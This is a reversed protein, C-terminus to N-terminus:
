DSQIHSLIIERVMNLAYNTTMEINRIRSYRLKYKKTMVSKGFCAAMWVTGVPKEETGGDPGMIGSVAIGIDTKMVSSVSLAMAKVTEESVAGHIQLIDEAVGLLNQKVEDAYSVVSGKFYDSSGPILTIQHAINGGTCSEATSLTLAHRRLLNGVTKAPLHDEDDVMIDALMTKLESFAKELDEGQQLDSERVTLRLRLFGTAPLYALSIFPPLDNEFNKLREAVQSEGLGMTVMTRHLIPLLSFRERLRPIVHQIMLGEMEHPVGPMSVFVNGHEEFWLGPATGHDNPLVTCSAPVLAQQMNSKLIPIGLPKMRAKVQELVAQNEVLSTNFYECLVKKTIDDNTPGLGGTILVIESVKSEEELAKLIAERNDGVAVRRQVWIGAQNLQMAMWSSNTDITQGILLEDGITIISVMIQKM